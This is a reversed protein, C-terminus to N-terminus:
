GTAGPEEGMDIVLRQDQLLRAGDLVVLGEATLGRLYERAAGAVAEPPPLVDEVRLPLVEHVADALLGFEVREGGLLLVRSPGGEAGGALGFLPRLDFVAVIEGRVNIVGALFAPAGPLPTPESLRVVERVHRAAVAYREGAVAFTIVEVVEAARPAQAPARALLRAREELVARAREPSLRSGDERAAQELRRRVQQWDLPLAKGGQRKM